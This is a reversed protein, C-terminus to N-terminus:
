NRMQCLSPVAGTAISILDYLRYYFVMMVEALGRIFDLEWLRSHPSFDM